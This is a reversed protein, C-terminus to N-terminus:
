GSEYHLTSDLALIMDTAQSKGIFHVTQDHLLMIPDFFIKKEMELGIARKM